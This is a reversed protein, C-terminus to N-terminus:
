HQFIVNPDLGAALGFLLRLRSKVPSLGKASVVGEALLHSESGLGSYTKELIQASHGCRSSLVVPQGSHVRDVVSQALQPPLHGGGLGAVVFGEVQDAVARVLLGDTGATACILEVRGWPEHARPLMDTGPAPGLLLQVRDEVFYGVPGAAPSSFAAIQTSRAKTVWRAVHIEDHMVVVPGYDALSPTLAAALAARINAAGDAGAAYPVRMSGTLVVPVSTPVLMSLVYATEELTDTGHTIIVGQAGEEISKHVHEALTWMDLPEMASSPTNMVDHTRVDVEDCRLLDTVIDTARLAPEGGAGQARTAITGGTALVAILPKM